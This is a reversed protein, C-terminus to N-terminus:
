RHADILSEAIVSLALIPLSLPRTAFRILVITKM